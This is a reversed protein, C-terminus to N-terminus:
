RDRAPRPRMLMPGYEALFLGFAAMWALGAAELMSEQAHPLLGAGIRLLAAALIAGYIAPTFGSASIARGTHGRSARTMVALTMIGIAGVTWAHLAATGGLITPAFSEIAGLLFGFPVFAYGLHLILVIPERWTHWGVWRWLRVANLISAIVFLIGTAMTEPAVVWALLALCSVVLAAMDFRGFPVPLRESGMRLLWTHTFSPVIRGGVLMILAILAAVGARSATAASGTMLVEVNFGINAAALLAVFVLPKLNRWNRGVIIERASVLVLCPLFLGDLVVAPIPGVTGTMLFTLRGACWLLFLFVLRWGAVPLTGTWNPVATLIFGAVVAGTYGFIMEHAHWAPAGYGQGVSWLGGLTSIWLAMAVIAWTAAGVFFPRFGYTFLAFTRDAPRRDGDRRGKEIRRQM